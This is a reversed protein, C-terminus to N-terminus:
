QYELYPIKKVTMMADVAAWVLVLGSSVAIVYNIGTLGGLKVRLKLKQGSRKLRNYCVPIFILIVVIGCKATITLVIDQKSLVLRKTLTSVLFAPLVSLVRILLYSTPHTARGSDHNPGYIASFVSNSLAQCPIPASSLLDTFVFLMAWSLESSFVPSYFLLSTNYYIVNLLGALCGVIGYLSVASVFLWFAVQRQARSHKACALVSPVCVQYNCAFALTEISYLLGSSSTPVNSVIIGSYVHACAYLVISVVMMVQAVTACQHLWLQHIHNNTMLGATIVALLLTGVHYQWACNENFHELDQECSLLTSYAQGWMMMFSAMLGTTFVVFCAFYVRAWKPGLIVKVIVTLDWQHIAKSQGEGIWQNEQAVTLSLEETIEMLELHFLWNVLAIFFLLCLSFQVGGAQFTRPIAYINAGLLANSLVFYM